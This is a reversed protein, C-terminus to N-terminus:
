SSHDGDIRHVRPLGFKFLAGAILAAKVARGTTPVGKRLDLLEKFPAGLDLPVDVLFFPFRRPSGLASHVRMLDAAYQKSTAGRHGSSEFHIYALTPDRGLGCASAARHVIQYVCEAFDDLNLPKDAYPQLLQLWGSLFERSDATNADRALRMALTEYRPETWKAEIALARNGSLVMCDTYSPRGRGRPSSVARELGVSISGTIGCQSLIGDFVPWDHSILALLPVTSRFPSALMQEGFASILETHDTKLATDFYFEVSTTM